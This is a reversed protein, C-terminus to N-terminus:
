LNYKEASNKLEWEELTIFDNKLFYKYKKSFGNRVYNGDKDKVKILANDISVIEYKGDKVIIGRSSYYDLTAMRVVGKIAVIIDGIQWDSHSEFLKFNTIM